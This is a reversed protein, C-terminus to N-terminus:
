PRTPTFELHPTWFLLFHSFWSEQTQIAPNEAHPHWFFLTTCWVSHLCTATWLPLCSWFSKYCQFVRVYEGDVCVWMIYMLFSFSFFTVTSSPLAWQGLLSLLIGEANPRFQKTLSFQNSPRLQHYFQVHWHCLVPPIVSRTLLVSSTTYSFTDIACFQHCLQVHWYCLVPPMVLRTLLVSSTAYSFTDIACFQHYFQVHWYCLVPKIVSRTLLVSSTLIASNRLM